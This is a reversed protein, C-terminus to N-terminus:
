QIDFLNITKREGKVYKEAEELLTDIAKKLWGSISVGSESSDLLRVPSNVNFSGNEGALKINASIIIYPTKDAGKYSINITHVEVRKVMSEDNPLELLSLWHKRIGLLANKFAANPEDPSDLIQIYYQDGKFEMWEVTVRGKLYKVHTTFM